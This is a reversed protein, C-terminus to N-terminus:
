RFWLDNLNMIYELWEIKTLFKRKYKKNFSKKLKLM